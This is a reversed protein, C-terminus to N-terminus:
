ISYLLGFAARLSAHEAGVSKRSVGNIKNLTASYSPDSSSCMPLYDIGLDGPSSRSPKETMVVVSEAWYPQWLSWLVSSFCVKCKAGDNNDDRSSM